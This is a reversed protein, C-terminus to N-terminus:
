IARRAQLFRALNIPDCMIILNPSGVSEAYNTLATILGDVPDKALVLLIYDPLTGQYAKTIQHSIDKWTVTLHPISKFGKVVCAFSSFRRKVPLTFHELDAVELPTDRRREHPNTANKERLSDLLASQILREPVKELQPVLAKGEVIPTITTESFIDVFTLPTVM